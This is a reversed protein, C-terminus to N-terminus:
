DVSLRGRTSGGAHQLKDEADREVESSLSYGEELDAELYGEEQDAEM